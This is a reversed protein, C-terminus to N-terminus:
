TETGGAPDIALYEDKVAEICNAAIALGNNFANFGPDNPGARHEYIKVAARNLAEERVTALSQELEKKSDVLREAVQRMAILAEETQALEGHLERVQAALATYDQERFWFENRYTNLSLVIDETRFRKVTESKEM